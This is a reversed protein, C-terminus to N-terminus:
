VNALEQEYENIVALQAIAIRQMTPVGVPGTGSVARNYTLQDTGSRQIAIMVKRYKKLTEHRKSLKEQLEQLVDM